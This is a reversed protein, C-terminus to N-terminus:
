ENGFWTQQRLWALQAKRDALSMVRKACEPGLTWWGQSEDTGSAPDDYRMVLGDISVEVVLADPKTKRGCATCHGPDGAAFERGSRNAREEAESNIRWLNEPQFEPTTTPTTDTM